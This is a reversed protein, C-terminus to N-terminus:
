SENLMGKLIEIEDDSLSEDQLMELILTKESQATKQGDIKETQPQWTPDDKPENTPEQTPENSTENDTERSVINDVNEIAKSKWISGFDVSVTLNFKDQLDKCANLRNELMNYLFPYLLEDNAGVEGSTLRERKMVISANLGIEHFLSGKLYQHYEILSTFSTTNSTLNLAKVGDFVPNEAIVSM